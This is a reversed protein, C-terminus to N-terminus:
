FWISFKNIILAIFFTCNSGPPPPVLPSRQFPPSPPPPPVVLNSQNYFEHIEYRFNCMPLLTRGGVKGSNSVNNAFRNVADELCSSCELESLDPTCQHLGYITALNPGTTNGAAFKRLPGGAAAEIRLQNMLPKLLSNFRDKDSADQLNAYVVYFSIQTSGLITQNSYKLM